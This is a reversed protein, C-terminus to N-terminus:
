RRRDSKLKFKILNASALELKGALFAALAAAKKAWFNTLGKEQARTVPNRLQKYRM